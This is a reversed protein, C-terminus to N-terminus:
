PHYITTQFSKLGEFDAQLLGRWKFFEPVERLREKKELSIAEKKRRKKVRIAVLGLAVDKSSDLGLTSIDSQKIGMKVRLSIAKEGM